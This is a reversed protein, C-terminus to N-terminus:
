LVQWAWLKTAPKGTDRIPAVATVSNSRSIFRLLKHLARKQARGENLQKIIFNKDAHWM